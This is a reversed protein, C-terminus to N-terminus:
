ESLVTHLTLKKARVAALQRARRAGEKLDSTDGESFGERVM